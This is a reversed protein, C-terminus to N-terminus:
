GKEANKSAEMFKKYYAPRKFNEKALIFNRDSASMMRLHYAEGSERGDKKPMNEPFVTNNFRKM